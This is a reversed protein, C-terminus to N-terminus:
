PAIRPGMTNLTGGGLNCPCEGQAKIICQGVAMQATDGSVVVPLFCSAAAGTDSCTLAGAIAQGCACDAMCM